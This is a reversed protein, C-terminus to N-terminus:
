LGFKSGIAGLVAKKKQNKLYKNVDNAFGSSNQELREMNDGMIGLRETREQVQRQMYAWYGEQPDQNSSAAQRTRNERNEAQRQQEEQRMQQIMRKSPPRDPGGILLDMDSTSVHQTGSIWQLNSITPRPPVELQPNFLIDACRDRIIILKEKIMFIGLFSFVYLSLGAGWVNVMAVESPGFWGLVDGSDTICADGFRRVDLLENIPTSAIEKLAPISYARAKGDGFLGVLSCAEGRRVVTASDCMFDDWSKNAGKSVSPKFIRCGSPTVAVVIGNVKYGTRLSSVANQTTLAQQGNEANIPCITLIRDDLSSVGDLSVMYGDSGPLIKFTALRGRNTGVFCVISSYDQNTLLDFSRDYILLLNVFEGDGEVTLVGFEICTAWESVTEPSSHSKMISTRRHQKGFDSPNATHIIKPGRMDMFAISGSQYGICVFGVDSHKLSTVPGQRQDLLILPIFGEKLDPDARHTVDTVLGPGQNNGLPLDSGANQNRNWRFVVVEGSKLGVSFEGASGALSMQSVEINDYRGVARALDVQLVTPNEIEDDHGTDWLRVIGDGHAVQVIDRSEFRKMHRKAEAGGVLLKPGQARREKWGLWRTREVSALTIKNAFPHVLSLSLHLMNTPSISHGSPFSLTMLEGSSLLAILAIPDQWGCFHPSARPILCFDIVEANPPTSLKDQRKPSAFHSSLLQWSSTQYNPTPGFDFFTLGKTEQTTSSGGAVLLGTDDPNNGKCCWAVHLIPEKLSFADPNSSHARPTPGPTDINTDTLTRAMVVRGDKPDWFVLSSDDHATLIFTGTPHWIAKTVRPRRVDRLSSPDPSGGPAGPPIEFQFYKVPINQKVSFIVAGDSYGILITGIDRPHFALSVIPLVRARPNREKWFNPLKFPTVTERDLDYAVIEGNQLGIFAYDLSPDTLLATVLGPPAYSAVMKREPLSFVCIENKSDMSVLKEAVFQLTTVSAKRPLQFVASVRQQGFVYVQGGGYQTESTGVALLSQVPDYALTSIRSNIGYRAVVDLMFLDSFLGTSLDNQIGAQKGRLFHAM